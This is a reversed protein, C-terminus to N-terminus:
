FILLWERVYFESSDRRILLEESMNGAPIVIYNVQQWCTLNGWLNSIKNALSLDNKFSLFLSEVKFCNFTRIFEWSVFRMEPCYCLFRGLIQVKRENTHFSNNPRHKQFSIEYKLIIINWYWFLVNCQNSCEVFQISKLRVRWESHVLMITSRLAGTAKGM